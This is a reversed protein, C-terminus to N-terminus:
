GLFQATRIRTHYEILQAPAVGGPRTRHKVLIKQSPPACMKKKEPGIQREVEREFFLFLYSSTMLRLVAV